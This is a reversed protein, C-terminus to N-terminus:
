IDEFFECECEDFGDETCIECPEGTQISYAVHDDAM